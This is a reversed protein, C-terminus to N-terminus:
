FEVGQAAKRIRQMEDAIEDRSLDCPIREEGYADATVADSLIWAKGDHRALVFMDQEPLRGRRVHSVAERMTAIRYGNSVREATM